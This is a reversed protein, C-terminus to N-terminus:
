ANEEMAAGRGEWYRKVKKVRGRGKSYGKVEEVRGGHDRDGEGKYSYLIYQIMDHNSMIIIEKNIKAHCCHMNIQVIGVMNTPM